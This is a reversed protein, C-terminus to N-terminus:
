LAVTFSVVAYSDDTALNYAYLAMGFNEHTFEVALGRQVTFDTDVLKSREGVVGVSLSDTLAYTLTSWAYFYDNDRDEADILYESESYWSV